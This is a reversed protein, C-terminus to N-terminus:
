EDEGGAANWGKRFIYGFFFVFAAFLFLVAILIFCAGFVVACGSFGILIDIM